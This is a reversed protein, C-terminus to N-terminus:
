WCFMPADHALALRCGDSLGHWVWAEVAEVPDRTDAARAFGAPDARMNAYGPPQVDLGLSSRGRIAELDAQLGIVSGVLALESETPRPEMALPLWVAPLAWPLHRYPSREAAREVALGDLSAVHALFRALSAINLLGLRAVDAGARRWTAAGADVDPLADLVDAETDEALRGVILEVYGM